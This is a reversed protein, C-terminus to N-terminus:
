GFKIAENGKSKSIDTLIHVIIIKQGTDSTMFKSILQLKRILSNLTKLIVFFFDNKMIKLPSEITLFQRLSSLLGKIFM